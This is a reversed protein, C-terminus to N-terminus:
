NEQRSALIEGVASITPNVAMIQGKPNLLYKTPVQKVGFEKAIPSDFFRLSTAQDFLHYPWRDLGDQVIAREWRSRDEEVGVSIIYFGEADTFVKGQYADFLAVLKPNEARCPGCWSGWFDVLLYNGKLSSLEFAQGNRLTDQIQPLAEGNVFKPKMYFYRGVLLGVVGLILINLVMSFKVKAM